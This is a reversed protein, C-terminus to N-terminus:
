RDCSLANAGEPTLSTNWIVLSRCDLQVVLAIEDPNSSELIIKEFECLFYANNGLIDWVWSPPAYSIESDSVPVSELITAMHWCRYGVVGVVLTVSLVCAWVLRRWLRRSHATRATFQSDHDNM